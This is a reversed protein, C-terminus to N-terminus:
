GTTPRRDQSDLVERVKRRLEVVTYPKGLFHTGEDLVGHHVIVDDTYGSTYVVKMGPHSTSVQQALNRVSMGPMVVDTLMLHVPGDHRELLLLAEEGSAAALVTYGAPELFRIALRRLADDDEVVLITESGGTAAVEPVEGSTQVSGEALPLYIKFVSGRGVESYVWISGGSQKVIGYVTSLGLGTGKGPDKTTFFPEFIQLRTAEDMGIGTDSVALMVHPGPQASPHEATYAEDLVVGQTEITLTGGTPMADRANVALNLVVQEIQGPDAKVPGVDKGPVFAVTVDEGLLRHLMGLMDQLVTNLNLISPQLVQKRSFALLQRTLGAARKGAERVEQLEAYLPDEENRNMLALDVRGLIVTLLNNFDHAIGGALRGVSEMKQAQLFQAELRKQETLDRQIAIFHAIEGRAGKVPTITQEEPYLRGDKRRNTMEGRWVNGALITDWLDKFFLQDHVGSKVLDRPNKGVAEDASFGTAVTFAANVWEITGSRDTILMANAAANLAASQVLLESQAQMREPIDQGQAITAVLTKGDRAHINASNWLALRVSGDTRLIPIEVSEWYEGDITNLIKRLSAERTEEPFLVSLHKGIVEPAPHGTLKEFAQNFQSITFDPKWVIIPANAYKILSELYDRTERQEEEAQKRRTIDRLNATVFWGRASEWQALSVALPFESADKRRGELEVITGIVHTEGGSQVRHLGALDPEHFRHPMLSTLPQGVIEAETYGFIRAAAQNWDVIRGASDATIIADNASETMARYRAENDQLLALRQSSISRGIAVVLGLTVAALLLRFVIVPAGIFVQFTAENLWNAPFFNAEPRILGSAASWLLTTVSTAVCLRSFGKSFGADRSVAMLGAAAMLGGPFRILYGVLPSAAALPKDSLAAVGVVVALLLPLGWRTARPLPWRSALLRRGFEFLPLWSLTAVILPGTTATDSPISSAAAWFDAVSHILLYAALLPWYRIFRDGVPSRRLVLLAAGSAVQVVGYAVLGACRASAGRAREHGVM